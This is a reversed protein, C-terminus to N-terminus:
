SSWENLRGSSSEPAASAASGIRGDTAEESARMAQESLEGRWDVRRVQTQSSRSLDPIVQGRNTRHGGGLMGFPVHFRAMQAHMDFIFKAIHGGAHRLLTPHEERPGTLTATLM